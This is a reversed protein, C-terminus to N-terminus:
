RLTACTCACMEVSAHARAIEGLCFSLQWDESGTSRERCDTVCGCVHSQTRANALARLRGTPDQRMFLTRVCISGVNCRSTPGPCIARADAPFPCFNCASLRAGHGNGHELIVEWTRLSKQMTNLTSEVKRLVLAAAVTLLVLGAATLSQLFLIQEWEQLFLLHVCHHHKVLLLKVFPGLTHEDQWAKPESCCTCQKQLSFLV